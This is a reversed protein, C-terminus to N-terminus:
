GGREHVAAQVQYRGGMLDRNATVNYKQKGVRKREWEQQTEMM